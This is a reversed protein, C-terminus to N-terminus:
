QPAVTLNSMVCVVRSAARVRAMAHEPWIKFYSDDSAVETALDLFRFGVMGVCKGDQFLSVFKQQRAFDDSFLRQAGNLEAFTQAWVERGAATRKTSCSGIADSRSGPKLLAYAYRAVEREADAELCLRSRRQVTENRLRPVIMTDRVELSDEVRESSVSATHNSSM